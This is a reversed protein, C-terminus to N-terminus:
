KQAIAEVEVKAGKPLAAVAVCARAPLSPCDAFFAGYIKNVAEFDGMDTLFITCKVIKEPGLGAARLIAGLNVMVQRAQEEVKEGAMAGLAPALGIQGSVFLLDGAWRAQSYPGVAQPATDTAVVGGSQENSM